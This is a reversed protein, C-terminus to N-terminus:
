AVPCDSEDLTDSHCTSDEQTNTPQDILRSACASVTDCAAALDELHRRWVPSKAQQMARLAREKLDDINALTQTNLISDM